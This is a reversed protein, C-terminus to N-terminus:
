IDFSAMLWVCDILEADNGQLFLKAGYCWATHSIAQLSIWQIGMAIVSPTSCDTTICYIEGCHECCVGCLEFMHIVYLPDKM